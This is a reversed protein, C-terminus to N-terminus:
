LRNLNIEGKRYLARLNPSVAGRKLRHRIVAADLICRIPYLVKVM